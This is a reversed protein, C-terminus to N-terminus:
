LVELEFPLNSHWEPLPSTLTSIRLPSISIPVPLPDILSDFIFPLTSDDDPEPEIFIVFESPTKFREVADPDMSPLLMSTVAFLWNLVAEPDISIPNNFGSFLRLKSNDAADPENSALPTLPLFLRVILM